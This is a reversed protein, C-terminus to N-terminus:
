EDDTSPDSNNDQDVDSASVEGMLLGWDWTAHVRQWSTDNDIIDATCAKKYDRLAQCITLAFASCTTVIQARFAEQHQRRKKATNGCFHWSVNAADSTSTSDPSPPVTGLAVQVKIEM